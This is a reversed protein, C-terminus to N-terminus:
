YMLSRTDQQNLNLCILVTRPDNNTYFGINNQLEPKVYLYVSKLTEENGYGDQIDFGINLKIPNGTRSANTLTDNNILKYIEFENLPAKGVGRYRNTPLSPDYFGGVYRSPTKAYSMPDSAFDESNENNSDLIYKTVERRANLDYIDKTNGLHYTRNIGETFTKSARYFM